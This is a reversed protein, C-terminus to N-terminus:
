RLDRDNAPSGTGAYLGPTSPRPCYPEFKVRQPDTFLGAWVRLLRDESNADRPGVKSVERGSPDVLRGATTAYGCFRVDIGRNNLAAPLAHKDDPDSIRKKIGIEVNENLDSAVRLECRSDEKCGGARLAAIGQKVGLFIPSILTPRFSNCKRWIDTLLASQRREIAHRGEIAKRSTPITYTGLLQPENVTTSNGLVLVTLTSNPLAGPGLITEGATGVISECSGPYSISPDGVVARDSVPQNGTARVRWAVFSVSTAVALLVLLSTKTM